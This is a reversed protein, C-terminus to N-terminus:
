LSSAWIWLADIEESTLGLVVALSQVWPDTRVVTRAYEFEIGALTRDPEPLADIAAIVDDLLGASLLGLRFQRMTLDPLGPSPNLAASLADYAEQNFIAWEGEILTMLGPLFAQGPGDTEVVTHTSPRIDPARFPSTMGSDAMVPEVDLLHHVIGTSSEVVAFMM